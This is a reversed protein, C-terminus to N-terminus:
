ALADQKNKELEAIIGELRAAETDRDPAAVAYELEAALSALWTGFQLDTLGNPEEDEDEDLPEPTPAADLSRQLRAETRDIEAAAEDGVGAARVRELDAMHARLFAKLQLDTM